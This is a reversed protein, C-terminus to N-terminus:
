AGEPRSELAQNFINMMTTAKSYDEAEPGKML